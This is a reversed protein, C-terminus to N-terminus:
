ERRERSEILRDLKQSIEGLYFAICELTHTARHDPHVNPDPLYGRRMKERFEDAAPM